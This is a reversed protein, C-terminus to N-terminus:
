CDLVGNVKFDKDSLKGIKQRFVVKDSFSRVTCKFIDDYEEHPKTEQVKGKLVYDESPTFEFSTAIPGNPATHQSYLHRGDDIKGTFVLEAEQGNLEKVSYTWKVHEEIQAFSAIAMGLMLLITLFKKM